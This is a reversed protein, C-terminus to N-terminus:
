VGKPSATALPTIPRIRHHGSAQGRGLLRLVQAEVSTAGRVPPAMHRRAGGKVPATPNTKKNQKKPSETEYTFILFISILSISPIERILRPGGGAPVPGNPISVHARPRMCGHAHQMVICSLVHCPLCSCALQRWRMTQAATAQMETTETQAAAAAAAAAAAVSAAGDHQNSLQMSAM